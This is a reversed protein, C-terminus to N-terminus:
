EWPIDDEVEERLHRIYEAVDEVDDYTGSVADRLENFAQTISTAEFKRISYVEIKEIDEGNWTAIGKVEIHQDLLAAAQKRLEDPMYCKINLGRVSDLLGITKRKGFIGHLLGYVNTEGRLTLEAVQPLETEASIEFDLFNSGAFSIATKAEAELSSTVKRITHLSDLCGKPLRLAKNKRLNLAVWAFADMAGQTMDRPTDFEIRYCKESIQVPSVVFLDPDIEADLEQAATAILKEMAGILAAIARGSVLGPRLRDSGSVTIAIPGKDM